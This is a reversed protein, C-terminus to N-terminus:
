FWYSIQASFFTKNLVRGADRWNRQVVARVTLNRQLYVGGGAEVRTVPADWPTPQGNSRVVAVDSFRLGDVRGAVFYRPGFRYRSEVYASRATLPDTIEPAAIVPLHWHNWIAEGRVIWYGRSYEGDLGVADQPFSGREGSGYADQLSRVLFAGRAASVGLVLGVAPTVAVRGSYQRGRNDDSVRPNALTGVTVAGSLDFMRITGHGEIGTDWRYATILPVGPGSELAGIPYTARWGRARMFLLDDATAPIADSRISTLYQYGLPYGILPNDTGYSRRAFAGFVPPIRGVQLDFARGKVPRLRAYLAYPIVRQLDESRVESVFAFQDNPRWMGTLSVRFMRLANHEYDTYNFFAIEDKAGFTATVDGGVTVTGKAMEVPGTPLLQAIFCWALWHATNM